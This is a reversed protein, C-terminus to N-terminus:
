SACRRQLQECKSLLMEMQSALIETELKEDAKSLSQKESVHSVHGSSSSPRHLAKGQIFKRYERMLKQKKDTVSDRLDQFDEFHDERERAASQRLVDITDRLNKNEEESIALARLDDHLRQNQIQLKSNQHEIETSHSLTQSMALTFEIDQADQVANSQDELAKFSV